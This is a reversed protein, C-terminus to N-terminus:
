RHPGRGRRMGRQAGAGLGFLWPKDLLVPKGLLRPQGLQWGRWRFALARALQDLAVLGDEAAAAPERPLVCGGTAIVEDLQTPALQVAELPPARQEHEVIGAAAPRHQHRFPGVLHLKAPGAQHEGDGPLAAAAAFSQPPSPQSRAGAGSGGPFRLLIQEIM